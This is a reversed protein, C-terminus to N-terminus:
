IKILNLISEFYTNRHNFYFCFEKLFKAREITRVGKRKKIWIKLENHFSEVAQTNIGSLSDVFNYKHTVSGHIFGYNRLNTYSRHEDTFITAGVCVNDCIIPILTNLKKNPIVKAFCRKIHTNEIEIITISDTRNTSSRGRHSKCKYNLMTEDVQVLRSGAGLKDLKFDPEKMRSILKAIVKSIVNESVDLSKTITHIQSCSSYKCIIRFIYGFSINFDEFFSDTRVSIYKGFSVCARNNCKWAFGDTSRKYKTMSMFKFCQLCPFESKLFRHEQLFTITERANLLIITEEMKDITLM